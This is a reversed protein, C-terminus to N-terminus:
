ADEIDEGEPIWPREEVAGNDALVGESTINEAAVLAFRDERLPAITSDRGRQLIKLQMLTCVCRREGSAVHPPSSQPLPTTATATFKFVTRRPAAPVVVSRPMAPHPSSFSPQFSEQTVATTAKEKGSAEAAVTSDPIPPPDVHLVVYPALGYYDMVVSETCGCRLLLDPLCERLIDVEDAQIRPSSSCSVAALVTSNSSNDGSTFSVGRRRSNSASNCSAVVSVASASELRMLFRQTWEQESFGSSGEELQSYAKHYSPSVASVSVVDRVRPYASRLFPPPEQAAFGPPPHVETQRALYTRHFVQLAMVDLLRATNGVNEGAATTREALQRRERLAAASVGGSGSSLESTRLADAQSAATACYSYQQLQDDSFYRIQNNTLYDLLKRPPVNLIDLVEDISYKQTLLRGTAHSLGLYEDRTTPLISRHEPQTTTAPTGATGTNPEKKARRTTPRLPKKTTLLPSSDMQSELLALMDTICTASPAPATDAATGFGQQPSRSRKYATHQTDRSACEGQPQTPEQMVGVSQSPATDGRESVSSSTSSSILVVDDDANTNGKRCAMDMVESQEGCSPVEDAIDAREEEEAGQLAHLVFFAEPDHQDGGALSSAMARRKQLRTWTAEAERTATAAAVCAKGTREGNSPVLAAWQIQLLAQRIDGQSGAAVADLTAEDVIDKLSPTCETLTSVAASTVKGKAKGRRGKVGGAARSGTQTANSGGSSIGNAQATDPTSSPVDRRLHARRRAECDLVYRLRKKLNIETVPTCHFLEVASSQLVASPFASGLDLKDNHSDHTTHVFCVLNRRMNNLLANTGSVSAGRYTDRRQAEDRLAQSRLEEYQRLFLLTCRHLSHSAPEGYFKVIHAHQLPSAAASTTLSSTSVKANTSPTVSLAADDANDGAPLLTLASGVLQGSCLSLVHQLYQAYANVTSECTHFVRIATPTFTTSPTTGSAKGPAAVPFSEQLLVKLSELKGCGPPGYLLLIRPTQTPSASGGCMGSRIGRVCSALSVAKQRSWALDAVTKPAYVENLMQDRLTCVIHVCFFLLLPFSIFYYLTCCLLHDSHYLTTLKQTSHTEAPCVFLLVYSTRLLAVVVVVPL